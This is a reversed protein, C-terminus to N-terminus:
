FVKADFLLFQMMEDTTSCDTCTVEASPASARTVEVLDLIIGECTLTVDLDSEETIGDVPEVEYRIKVDNQFEVEKGDIFVKM